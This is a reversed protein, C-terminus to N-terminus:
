LGYPSAKSSCLPIAPICLCGPQWLLRSGGRPPGPGLLLSPPTTASLVLGVCLQNLSLCCASSRPLHARKGSAQPQGVPVLLGEPPQDQGGMWAHSQNAQNPSWCWDGALGEQGTEARESSPFTRSIGPSQDSSPVSNLGREKAQGPKQECAESFFFTVGWLM